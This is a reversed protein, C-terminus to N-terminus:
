KISKGCLYRPWSRCFCSGWHWRRTDLLTCSRRWGAGRCINSGSGAPQLGLMRLILL